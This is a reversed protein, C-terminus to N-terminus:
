KQVPGNLYLTPTMIMGPQQIHLPPRVEVDNQLQTNHMTWLRQQEESWRSDLQERKFEDADVGFLELAASRDHITAVPHCYILM